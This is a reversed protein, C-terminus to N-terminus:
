EFKPRSSSSRSGSGGSGNMSGLIFGSAFDGSGSRSSHRHPNDDCMACVCVSVLFLVTLLCGVTSWFKNAAAIEPTIVDHNTVRIIAHPVGDSGCSLREIDFTYRLRGNKYGGEYLVRFPEISLRHAGNGMTENHLKFVGPVYENSSSCLPPDQLELHESVGVCDWEIDRRLRVQLGLGECGVVVPTLPTEAVAPRFGFALVLALLKLILQQM